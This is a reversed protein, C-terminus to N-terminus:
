RGKKPCGGTQKRYRYTQRQETKKTKSRVYLHTWMTNTKTQSIWNAYYGGLGDMNNCSALNWSKIFSYCELTHTHTHTQTHTHTHLM